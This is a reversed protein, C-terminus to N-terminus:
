MNLALRTKLFLMWTLVNIKYNIENTKKNKNKKNTKLKFFFHFLFFISKLTNLFQSM